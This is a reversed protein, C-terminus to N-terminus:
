EEFFDLYVEINKMEKLKPYIELEEVSFNNQLEIPKYIIIKNQM